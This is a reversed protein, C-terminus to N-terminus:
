TRSGAPTATPNVRRQPRRRVRRSRLNTTLETRLLAKTQVFLSTYITEHLVQMTPDDPHDLLLRRSIQRPSWCQTLKDEVYERLLSARRAQGVEATRDPDHGAPRCTGCPLRQPRQQAAGGAVGDVGLPRATRRDRDADEEAGPRPTHPDSTPSAPRSDLHQRDAARPATPDITTTTSTGSPSPQQANTRAAYERAYLVGRRPDAPLAGGETTARPSRSSRRTGPATASSGAFDDRPLLRRQRHRRPPHPHHRPRRVLGKGPGPVRGRHRGERRRGARHLGAPLVRRRHLAPLSLGANRRPRPGTWPGIITSDRGHIRWGGGDPIRGVKKVDLHVMHGPWRATIKGPKRNNDGSPDLFRRHGLGLRSLHRTVTRRNIRYGVSGARPHDAARVVEEGAALDRDERDGVGPDHEPQHHPRHGTQLGLEGYRRWRTVWKSACARSTGMEAAVHSRDHQCREGSAAPRRACPANRHSM